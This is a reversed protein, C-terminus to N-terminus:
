ERFNIGAFILKLSKCDRFITGAFIQIRSFKKWYLVFNLQNRLIIWFLFQLGAEDWHIYHKFAGPSLFARANYNSDTILNKLDVRGPDKFIAFKTFKSIVM